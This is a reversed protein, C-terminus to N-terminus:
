RVYGARSLVEEAAATMHQEEAANLHDYGFLHLLGHCVLFALEREESHGYEAAQQRMREVSVAIDGLFLHKTEPDVCQECFDGKGEWLEHEPFSLVDTPADINRFDRNLERIGGNDTLLVSFEAAPCGRKACFAAAEEVIGGSFFQESIRAIVNRCFCLLETKEEYAEDTQIDCRYTM